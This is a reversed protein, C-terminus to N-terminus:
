PVVDTHPLADPRAWQQGNHGGSLVATTGDPVATTFVFQRVRRRKHDTYDITRAFELDLGTLGTEEALERAAGAEVTEDNTRDGGPYEWSGPLDDHDTRRILLVRGSRDRVVIGVGFHEIGEHCASATLM